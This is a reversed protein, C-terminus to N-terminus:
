KGTCPRFTEGASINWRLSQTDHKAMILPTVPLSSSSAGQRFLHLLPPPYLANICFAMMNEKFDDRMQINKVASRTNWTKGGSKHIEMMRCRCETQTKAGKSRNPKRTEKNEDGVKAENEAGKHMGKGVEVATLGGGTIGTNM